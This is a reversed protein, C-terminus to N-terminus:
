EKSDSDLNELAFTLCQIVLQNLSLNNEFALKDLKEVIEVPLRFTKSVSEYGKRIKWMNIVGQLLMVCYAVRSTRHVYQKGDFSQREQSKELM